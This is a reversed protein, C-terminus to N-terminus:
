TSPYMGSARWVSRTRPRGSCTGTGTSSCRMRLTLVHNLLANAYFRPSGIFPDGGTSSFRLAGDLASPATVDGWPMWGNTSSDQMNDAWKMEFALPEGVPLELLAASVSVEIQKADMAYPLDAVKEWAWGGISRELAMTEAGAGTRNIVYDYGEWGTAADRDTNLFLRMWAPDTRPTLAERTRVYFHLTSTDQAVKAAEIDNRGSGNAYRMQTGWGPHDRHMTDGRDDRFEPAVGSWDAFDGDVNIATAEGLSPPASAGKYRRVYDTLLYYYDDRSGGAMPEMDRNYEQNYADVFMVPDSVGNFEALRMAIWENWGTVFVFSPDVELARDFQEQFNFGYRYAQARPDKSGNHWSRGFTNAESFAAPMHNGWANQGVGVAMQEKPDDSSPFVHQPYVQLWSWQNTGSPATNYGPIPARFTFFNLLQQSLGDRNAMILPKGKWKFWLDQYLGQGYLDAYLTEVVAKSIGFPCLFLVQPTDGGDARVAAFTELLAMYNERYTFQNTVDFILTDVGADALMQAHKRIVYRDDSLYQGFLAPGWHHYNSLGGWPPATATQLANPHQALIDTNIFPGQLGHVGLWLFYFIGVFKGARPAGTEANTSVTRGLDDTAVWTDPNTEWTAAGAAFAALVM